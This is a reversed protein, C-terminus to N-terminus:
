DRLAADVDAYTKLEVANGSPDALMAKTQERDTGAYSTAPESLWRVGAASLREVLREWDARDLTVGFHRSGPTPPVEDPREQLTLQCGYFDVDAWGDRRRGSPCGLVGVYFALATDLDTVPLSLHLRPLGAHSESM